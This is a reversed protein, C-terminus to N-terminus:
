KQEHGPSGVFSTLMDCSYGATNQHMNIKINNYIYLKINKSSVLIGNKRKQFLLFPAARASDYLRMIM